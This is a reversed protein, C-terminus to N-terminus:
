GDRGEHEAFMRSRIFPAPAQTDQQSTQAPKKFPQLSGERASWYSCEMGIHHPCVM